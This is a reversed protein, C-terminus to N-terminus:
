DRTAILARAVLPIPTSLLRSRAFGAKRLIAQIEAPSRPRGSGMAALYMGFYADGAREAGPTGSMPEVILLRGRPPLCDRTAALLAAAIADDHDHLVRVLTILDYGPPLPDERFNGAHITVREAALGRSRALEAVAPLDFLAVDLAPEAAAIRAAFAGEGGGIDLMRRHRSFDYSALAQEAVM